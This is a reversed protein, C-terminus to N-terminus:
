LALLRPRWGNSDQGRQRHLACRDAHHQVVFVGRMAVAEVEPLHRGLGADMADGDSEERVHAVVACRDGRRAHQVLEGGDLVDEPAADRSAHGPGAIDLSVDPQPVDHNRVAVPHNLEIQDLLAGGTRLLM